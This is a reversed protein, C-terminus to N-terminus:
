VESTADIIEGNKDTKYVLAGPRIKYYNSDPHEEFNSISIMGDYDKGLVCYLGKNVDDALRFKDGSKLDCLRVPSPFQKTSAESVAKVKAKDMERNRKQIKNYLEDSLLFEWRKADTVFPELQLYRIIGRDDELPVGFRSTWTFDSSSIWNDSFEPRFYCQYAKAFRVADVFEMEKIM